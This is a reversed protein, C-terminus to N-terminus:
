EYDLSCIQIPWITKDMLRDFQESSNAYILFCKNSGTSSYCGYSLGTHCHKNIDKIISLESPTSDAAFSIRFPPFTSRTPTSNGYNSASHSTTPNLQQQQQVPRSGASNFY